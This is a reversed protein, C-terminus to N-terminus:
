LFLSAGSLRIVTDVQVERLSLVAIPELKMHPLLPLFDGCFSTYIIIQCHIHTNTTILRTLQTTGPQHTYINKHCDALPVYRLRASHVGPALQVKKNWGAAVVACCSSQVRAGTKCIYVCVCGCCSFVCLSFICTSCSQLSECKFQSVQWPNIMFAHTLTYATLVESVRFGCTM